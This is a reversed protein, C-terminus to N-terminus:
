DGPTEAPEPSEAADPTDAAEPSDAPEPSETADPTEQDKAESSDKPCSHAAKSVAAGHNEGEGNEKPAEASKDRAVKSVCDGHADADPSSSGLVIPAAPSSEPSSSPSAEPSETPTASPSASATDSPSASPSPSPKQAALAATGLLFVTAMAALLASRVRSNNFVRM